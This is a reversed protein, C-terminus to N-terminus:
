GKLPTRALDRTTAIVTAVTEGSAPNSIEVELADDSHREIVYGISGKPAGEEAFRDTRIEVREYLAFSDTM